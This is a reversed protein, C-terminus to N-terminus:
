KVWKKTKWLLKHRMASTDVSQRETMFAPAHQDGAAIVFLDVEPCNALGVTNHYSECDQHFELVM